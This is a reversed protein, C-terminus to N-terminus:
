FVKELGLNIHLSALCAVIQQLDKGKRKKLM